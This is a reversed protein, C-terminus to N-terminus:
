FKGVKIKDIGVGASIKFFRFVSSYQNRHFLFVSLIFLCSTHVCLSHPPNFITFIKKIQFPMLVSSSELFGKM